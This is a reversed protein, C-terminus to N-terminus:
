TPGNAHKSNAVRQLDTSKSAHDETVRYNETSKSAQDEKVGYNETYKSAHDETIRYNETSKSAHDETIRYNETSKSARDETVRYNETTKSAHDETVRYNETTKSARDETVRYNETTKSAHDETVRYNETTKSARDETVRYNETTKSARDETVRYNETTKSAHDETVRYNETTKSARDETVRYNETTKSARDETVRYNETTKSAHDETVRYNETSKSAHDETVRYNETTKSAHDETVRYNETTKSARDETVRYNETTKSARDETVRYNETTKSAHDETVRYNETTKSARDETVRYNETTKSARDETVRYNETTKSAHDETVRYNETTKSARDETVRYNETTKSARDETARYNETSKRAHDETVRYNETSKSAQDEKVGYNVTYKSAHDKKMTMIVTVWTCIDSKKNRVFFAFPDKEDDCHGVMQFGSAKALGQIKNNYESCLEKKLDLMFNSTEVILKADDAVIESLGHKLLHVMSNSFYVVDFLKNYKSKRPLDQFCNLPLFSITCDEPIMYGASHNSKETDEEYKEEAVVDNEDIETIKGLKEDDKTASTNSSTPQYQKGTLLEHIWATVNHESINTAMKVYMDNNKEFLSKDESATGFSLYPSNIIDGWYGRKVVREGSTKIILGSALTKNCAEYSSDERLEFAVGSERWTKYEKFNIIPAKDKLKMMYDWDYTNYRSDYRTGLYHRLRHDWLACIDFLKRDTSRWFKLIGELQDREKFSFTAALYDPDTVFRILENAKTQLFEDTQPRVLSNGFLELFLEVKEKLGLKEKPEFIISAFLIQRAIVELNNEIVYFKIKKTKHRKRLAISKLIHRFDAAGVLLVDLTDKEAATAHKVVKLDRSKTVLDCSQLDLAPSFGWWTVSGYADVM